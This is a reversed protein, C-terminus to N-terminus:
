APREDAVVYGFEALYRGAIRDFAAIQDHALDRKYRGVTAATIPQVVSRISPHNYPNAFLTHDLESHRLLDDRWGVGLFEVVRLITPAPELVLDEYRVEMISHARADKRTKEILEVWGKAARTIDRYGWTGHELLQSAAVDRGDRVLHLFQAKPWRQAYARVKAIDRMIKIGWRASGTAARRSEGLANILACRDEFRELKSRTQRMQQEILQRLQDFTIGFRHCRKAFQVGCKLQPNVKLGKGFARPDDAILLDCCTLVYPGLNEPGGFHLEPGVVLDPHSDLILSLLTTGSRGEGGIFIPKGCFPSVAM